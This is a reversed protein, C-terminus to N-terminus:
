KASAEVFLRHYYEFPGTGTEATVLVDWAGPGLDLAAEYHGITAAELRLAQEGETGIPRHVTLELPGLDLPRGEGDAIPFTAVGDAYGSIPLAAHLSLTSPSA